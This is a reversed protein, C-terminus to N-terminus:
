EKNIAAIEKTARVITLVERIAGYTIGAQRSITQLVSEFEEWANNLDLEFSHGWLFFIQPGPETCNLFDRWLANVLNQDLFHATPHLAYLNPGVSFSSTCEITRAYRIGTHERLIRTVREDYNVGGCPYAFGYVEYGAMESLRLRDREVERIVDSTEMKTLRPHSLSHAAIEHGMYVTRIDDACIKTHDVTKGNRILTGPRGLLGSNLNFTAKVGYRDLLEILRIDQLTGDDFSFTVYKQPVNLDTM